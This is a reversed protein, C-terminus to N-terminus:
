TEEENGANVARYSTHSVAYSIKTELKINAIGTKESEKALKDLIGTTIKRMKSDVLHFRFIKHRQPQAM